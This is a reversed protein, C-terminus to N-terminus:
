AQIMENGAWSNETAGWQRRSVKKAQCQLKWCNPTLRGEKDTLKRKKECCFSKSDGSCKRASMGGETQSTSKKEKARGSLVREKKM